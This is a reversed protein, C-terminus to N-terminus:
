VSVYTLILSQEIIGQRIAEGYISLYRSRWSPNELMAITAQNDCRLNLLIDEALSEHILLRFNRAVKYASSLAYLEAEASSEAMKAEKFSQWHILHRVSGYTLHISLGSQSERGGPAFSSDSYTTFETLSAKSATGQPYLYLLGRTGTTRLYQLLHRLRSKLASLDKFLVQSVLSVACALDPRTRTSLWLLAGIIKQGRKIWEYHEPNTQDPVEPPEKQFHEAEGTTWRPRTPISSQHEELLLETYTNQHLLIGHPLKEITVGLFTFDVGPALYVPDSTKWTKRIHTFFSSILEKPGTALYDDVYIGVLGLVKTPDVRKTLGHNSSVPQDLLDSEKVLMYLSKHIESEVARITEGQARFRLSSMVSTREESWLNPAERLGYIARNVKWCFGQPLLGLKYLITPPRLIVVRGAPLEANLFAATIDLSGLAHDRSSASWSLIYRLM